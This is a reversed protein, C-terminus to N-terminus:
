KALSSRRARYVGRAKNYASEAQAQEAPRIANRKMKWCQDIARLCWDISNKEAVPKNNLLVFVPNSHSSYKVRLAVWASRDVTYRFSVDNWNGDADIHVSDVPSGNVILEVPIKRTSGIRAREIHWFPQLAEERSAIDKSYDDQVASLWGAVRASIQLSHKRSINVESNGVGPEVGDVTFNIIHSKGESVYSRGKAIAAIYTDFSMPGEPKFYSRALGVREDFICPFDTEGSIRTRMGSNLTHYWMNMEWGFPTDGASYFDVANHAVTVVYENAGIGDMKPTVYNPLLNTKEEPELGWGSHAYGTIGGQSKAWKLVPLTYTPWQEILTTGPYDDEKLNLLVLHGAHSSPFGSVEIDYRMINKATSMESSSGTFFQKQHYWGPGWTLVAAVNLDEGMQQRWMDKPLVGQEPTEYHSCGSAHVHHDASFWGEDALNIWRKLVFSAHVTDKGSPVILEQNQLIYEPGRTFQINYKGPPLFVHEGNMRYVQPQFFFDPYEDVSALRRAPLPYLGRLHKPFTYFENAAIKLRYDTAKDAEDGTILTRDIGDTITFSAMAAAGNEEQVGLIVKVPSAIDFLINVTNRFGIDQSGQGINFGLEVERAGADRSYLQLIVYEIPQGSLHTNMPRSRYIAMELFRNQVQGSSLENAKQAHHGFSSIHFVPEANKSQPELRANSGAENHVKVLFTKWGNQILRPTAAGQQVKVRAEPNIHVMALCYPDLIEQIRKVQGATQPKNALERINQADEPTLASGVFSLAEELRIAHAIFPQPEVNTVLPLSPQQAFARMTTLLLLCPLINLLRM